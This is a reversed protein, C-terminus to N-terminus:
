EVTVLDRIDNFKAEGIGPVELLDEVAKFGGMAERQRVIAEALAPGIGPLAELEAATALNINLKAGPRAASQEQGSTVPAPTVAEGMSPVHIQMGDHLLVAQNVASPEADPTLGGAATIADVVRSGPPLTYVGPSAVEGSVFVVVPAPTASPSPTVTPPATPVILAIPEATPRQVAAAGGAVGAALLVGAAIHRGYKKLTDM